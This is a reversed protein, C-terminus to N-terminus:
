YDSIAAKHVNPLKMILWMLAQIAVQLMKINHLNPKRIAQNAVLIVEIKTRKLQVFCIEKVPVPCADADM